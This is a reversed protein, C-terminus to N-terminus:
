RDLGSTRECKSSRIRSGGLYSAEEVSPFIVCQEREENEERVRIEM